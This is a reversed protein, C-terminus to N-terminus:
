DVFGMKTKEKEVQTLYFGKYSEKILSITDDLTWNEEDESMEVINDALNAIFAGTINPKRGNINETLADYVEQIRWKEPLHINCVKIIQDPKLFTYDLTFNFRGPREAAKDVLGKDNTSALLSIKRKKVGDFFSLFQGLMRTYSGNDRSGLYLDIDDMIIVAQEFIECAEMISNLDGSTTFDPIVFTVDPILRRCIERISETNHTVVYDDTIYLHNEDEVMICQAQKKGILEVSVIENKLTKSYQYNDSILDVKRSLRFLNKPESYRINLNYSLKGKKKENKYTYYTQKEKIKCVGGISWILEQVDKALQYSTTSFSVHSSEDVTGDTDLLGQILSLKQELSGLKYKEPIFKTHSRKDNLEFSKIESVLKNNSFGGKYGKGEKRTILYDYGDSYVVNHEDDILYGIETILEKDKTTVKISYDNFSGDGLLVGMLYPDILFNVNTGINIDKSVLPTKIKYKTNDLKDKIALTDLIQWESKLRKKGKPIGCVKWLHEGCAETSRGDKFTIKYIDKEGQPFVGTVKTVNGTPTLVENNIKVDGMTLWGTPTLIKADLPQAKGTGPEGNLLYRASGGRALRSVFHDVYRRQTDTMILENSSEKIDIISIGRFRGETLSIKICKGKYESNNFSLSKIKKFVGEFEKYKLGKKSTIHIQNILDGRGDTFMKTQIFWENDDNTFNCNFWFSDINNFSGGITIRGINDTDGYMKVTIDKNNKKLYVDHLFSNVIAFEVFSVEDTYENSTYDEFEEEGLGMPEINPETYSIEPTGEMNKEKKNKINKVLDDIDLIKPFKIEHNIKADRKKM